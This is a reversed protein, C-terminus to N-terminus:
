REVEGEKMAEIVERRAEDLKEAHKKNHVDKLWVWIEDFNKDQEILIKHQNDLHLLPLFHAVKDDSINSYAIRDEKTENYLEKLNSYLDRIQYKLDITTRPMVVMTDLERQKDIVVRKIRRNETKIAKGLATMLEQLSVRKGRPLPTRPVLGPVDEELEIREQIYQKEKERGYLVDDLDRIDQNLLIESKIRLLLSAALLVKSSVFFNAEELEMVKTLYKSSLLSIDIDWPDLQETNILDYIIAQWSLKEGFLLGHIQEQGVKQNVEGGGVKEKLEM